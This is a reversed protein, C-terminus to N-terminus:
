VSNNIIEVDSDQDEEAEEETQSALKDLTKDFGSWNLDKRKYFLVYASSSCVNTESVEKVSQDDYCYWKGDDRHKAYATYHGHSITGM